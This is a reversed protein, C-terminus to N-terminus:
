RKSPATSLPVGLVAGLSKFFIDHISKTVCRSKRGAPIYRCSSGKKGSGEGEAEYFEFM